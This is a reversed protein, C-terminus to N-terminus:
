KLIVMDGNNTEIMELGGDTRLERVATALFEPFAFRLDDTSACLKSLFAHRKKLEAKILPKLANKVARMSALSGFPNDHRIGSTDLRSPTWKQAMNYSWSRVRGIANGTNPARGEFTVTSFQNLVLGSWENPLEGSFSGSCLIGIPHNQPGALQTIRPCHRHGHVVLDVRHRWLVDMLGEANAMMSFDTYGPTPSMWGYVHHHTLFIRYRGDDPVTGFVKYLEHLENHEISGHHPSLNPGDRVSSNLATVVAHEFEWKVICPALSFSGNDHSLATNFVLEKAM